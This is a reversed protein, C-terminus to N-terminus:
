DFRRNMAEVLREDFWFPRLDRPPWGCGIWIPREPDGGEFMVWVPAGVPPLAFNGENIARADAVSLCPQAWSLVGVDLVEPIEVELRGKLTPDIQNRVVARYLGYLKAGGFGDIKSAM